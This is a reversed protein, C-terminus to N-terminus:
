KTTDKPEFEFLSNEIGCPLFFPLKPIYLTRNDKVKGEFHVGYFSLTLLGNELRYTGELLPTNNVSYTCSGDDVFDLYFMNNKNLNSYPTYHPLSTAVYRGVEIDNQENDFALHAYSLKTAKLCEFFLPFNGLDEPLFEPDNEMFWVKDMTKNKLFIPADIFVMKDDVLTATYNFGYIDDHFSIENDKRKYKGKALLIEGLDIDSQIPNTLTMMYADGVINLHINKYYNFTNSNYCLITHIRDNPIDSLQLKFVGLIVLLMLMM